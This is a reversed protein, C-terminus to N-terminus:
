SSIPSESDVCLAEGCSIQDNKSSISALLEVEIWKTFYDIGVLLFKTQEKGTNFPGSIDM